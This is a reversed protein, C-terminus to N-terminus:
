RCFRWKCDFLMCKECRRDCPPPCHNDHNQQPPPPPPLSCTGDENIDVLIVDEGIKKVCRWPIFIDQNKGFLGNRSYPTVIGKIVGTQLSFILDNIKGMRKGDASNVVEKSRLQCFSIEQNENSM